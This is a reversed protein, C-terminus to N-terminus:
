RWCAALVSHQNVEGIGHFYVYWKDNPKKVIYNRTHWDFPTFYGNMSCETWPTSGQGPIEKVIMSNPAVGREFAWGPPPSGGYNPIVECIVNTLSPINCWSINNNNLNTFGYQQFASPSGTVPAVNTWDGTSDKYQMVGLLARFGYGTSGLTTGWNMHNTARILANGFVQLTGFGLVSPSNLVAPGIKDQGTSGTNLPPYIAGSPGPPGASPDTWVLTIFPTTILSIVLISLIYLFKM